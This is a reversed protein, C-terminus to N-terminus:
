VFSSTLIQAKAYDSHQQSTYASVEDMLPLPLGQWIQQLVGDDAIAVIAPYNTIDYLRAMEAGVKTELSILELERGKFRSYEHTYDEVTGGHESKIHYLVVVRM